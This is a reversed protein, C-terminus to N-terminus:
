VNLSRMFRILEDIHIPRMDWADVGVNINKGSVRGDKKVHTHGCIIYDYRDLLSFDPERGKKYQGMPDIPTHILYCNFEAIKLPMFEVVGEFLGNHKGDDHNGKVLIIKGNLRHVYLDSQFSFDGLHIVWDDKGVTDNWDQIMCEDMHRASNYPRGTYRIINFHGFHSDSTFYINKRNIQFPTM